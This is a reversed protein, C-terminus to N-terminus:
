QKMERDNELQFRINFSQERDVVERDLGAKTGRKRHTEGYQKSVQWNHFAQGDDWLTLIVYYPGSVAKMLM